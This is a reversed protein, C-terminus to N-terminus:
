RSFGPEGAQNISKRAQELLECLQRSGLLIRPTHRQIIDPDIFFLNGYGAAKLFPWQKWEDLWDPRAETMGSVIIADPNKVLVAEKGVQPTPAGLGAFINAGGCLRIVGGIVQKDTVTILPNPWVQYFVSIKELGSYRDRLRSLGVMYEQAVARAEDERGGLIGFRAIDEAVDELRQPENVFVTLGLKMLRDVQQYQNGEKWAVVLDPQLALVTEIDFNDYSGVAPVLRAGAPYDSYSVAGVVLHGLGAAFLNETINPALSVIRAAPADLKVTRGIDDVVEITGADATFATLCVVGSLLYGSIGTM